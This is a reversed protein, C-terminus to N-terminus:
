DLVTCIDISRQVVEQYLEPHKSKIHALITSFKVTQGILDEALVKDLQLYYHLKKNLKFHRVVTSDRQNENWLLNTARNFESMPNLTILPDNTHRALNVLWHFQLIFHRNLFLFQGIMTLATTADLTPNHRLYTQVGSVYRDFPDRIYVQVHELTKLQEKPVLTKYHAGLSSSGNKYIPYIYQDDAVLIECEDPFLVPDLYSLM